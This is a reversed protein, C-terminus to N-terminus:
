IKRAAMTEFREGGFVDKLVQYTCGHALQYLTLGLQRHPEIPDPQLNIPTKAISPGIEALIFEFSERNIRVRSKFQDDDWARYGNSWVEKQQTRNINPKRPHDQRRGGKVVVEAAHSIAAIVGIDDQEDDESNVVVKSGDSQLSSYMDEWAEEEM